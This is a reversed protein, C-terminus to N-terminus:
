WPPKVEEVAEAQLILRPSTQASFATADYDGFVSGTRFGCSSLAQRLPEEEWIRVEERYRHTTGDSSLEIDKIVMGRQADIHRKEVVAFRGARRRTEAVLERRIRQANFIDVFLNGGSRLVRRAERLVAIDGAAESFYGFSTFMSLVIDCSRERMPVHQMDARLLAFSSQHQQRLAAARQLLPWSLDVGIVQAGARELPLLWRGAGCALDLVVQDRVGFPELLLHTARDAEEQNRHAYVELYPADFAAEFWRRSSM